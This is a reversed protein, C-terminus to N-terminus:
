PSRAPPSTVRSQLLPQGESGSGTLQKSSARCGGLGGGVRSCRGVRREDRALLCSGERAALQGLQQQSGGAGYFEGPCTVGSWEQRGGERRCEGAILLIKRGWNPCCQKVIEWYKPDWDPEGQFQGTLHLTQGRFFFWFLWEFFHWTTKPDLLKWVKNGSTMM